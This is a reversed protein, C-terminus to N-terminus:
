AKSVAARHKFHPHYCWGGEEHAEAFAVCRAGREARLTAAIWDADVDNPHGKGNTSCVVIHTPQGDRDREMSVFAGWNTHTPPTHGDVCWECPVRAPIALDRGYATLDDHFDM